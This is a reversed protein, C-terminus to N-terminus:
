EEYKSGVRIKHELDERKHKKYSFYFNMFFGATALFIGGVALWDITQWWALASSAGGAYLTVKSAAIAESAPALIEVKEM